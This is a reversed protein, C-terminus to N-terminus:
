NWLPIHGIVLEDPVHASNLHEKLFLRQDRNNEQLMNDQEVYYQFQYLMIFYDILSTFPSLAVVLM